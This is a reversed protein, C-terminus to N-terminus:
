VLTSAGPWLADLVPCLKVTTEALEATPDSGEVIGAGARVLARHGDLFASRIALVWEGDGTADVWGTVGAWYGRAEPELTAIADLAADRPVGGVAPTPHLLGLLDLVTADGPQRLTGRILSGLRADSRLPVVSPAAPVALEKCWPRLAAAIEDVLLRHENRDKASAFLRGAPDDGGLAGLSITGAFPHSTVSTGIRSVILEPSAGVFRGGAVPMSFPSFVPDAGSLAALVRAPDPATRLNMEVMRSLVVKSLHGAAIEKLAGAVATAYDAGSPRAVLSPPPGAAASATVPRTSGELPSDVVPDHGAPPTVTVRWAAGDTRRCWTVAPVVLFAPASRDFPFAGVAVVRPAPERDRTDGGAATCQVAALWDVVERLAEPHELGSPLPLVAAVGLGAVTMTRGGVLHGDDAALALPDFAADVGTLREATVAFDGPDPLAAQVTRAETM